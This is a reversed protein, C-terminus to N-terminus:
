LLRYVVQWSKIYVLRVNGRQWIFGIAVIMLIRYCESDLYWCILRVEELRRCKQVSDFYTSRCMNTCIYSVCSRGQVIMAKNRGMGLSHVVQGGQSRKKM